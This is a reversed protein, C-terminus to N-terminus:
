STIRQLLWAMTPQPCAPDRPFARTRGSCLLAHRTHATRYSRHWRARWWCPPRQANAGCLGAVSPTCSTLCPPAPHSLPLRRPRQRSRMAMHTRSRRAPPHAAARRRPTRSIRCAGGGTATCYASPASATVLYISLIFIQHVDDLTASGSCPHGSPSPCSQARHRKQGLSISLYISLFVRPFSCRRPRGLPLSPPPTPSATEGPTTWTGHQFVQRPGLAMSVAGIHGLGARPAPVGRRTAEVYSTRM